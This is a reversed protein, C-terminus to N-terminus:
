LAEAAIDPPSHPAAASNATPNAASNATPNAAASMRALLLLAPQSSLADDTGTPTGTSAATPTGTSAAAAPCGAMMNSEDMGEPRPGYIPLPCGRELAGLDPAAGTFGDNINPLYVGRDLAGSNAALTLDVPQVLGRSDEDLLFGNQFIPATLALGHTEMGHTEMGYSQMVAMSSFQKVTARFRNFAFIGDPFYGNYDFLGTQFPGDWNVVKKLGPGKPGIFLNNAVVFYHSMASTQLNLAIQASVFTNHFVLIGSPEQPPTTGLGHFKMQEDLANVVVNRILYAPGGFIPQVSLPSWANYFRNRFCRVNGAGEDLEVGNDYSYLIDNGYFDVARAGTQETKMADGYGSIRNHCVVHGFGVVQIGDDNSHAGDDISYRLPWRLRGELSNDCIYFDKQGAHGGIAMTTDRINVRRVVNGEAGNTQFRIAREANRITMREIHVFGGGYVELVNCGTCGQGDLITKEEGAGRIVVPNESTGEASIRFQGGYVGDALRIIDGPRAARLAATLEEVDRVPKERPAVPDRPVARTSAELTLEQDVKADPDVAHLVIEYKTGPKLDFITGGFHPPVDLGTIVEPHVRFLPLAPRWVQNVSQKGSQSGAQAGSQSGAERYRVTVAAREGVEGAIPVKVGIATLTPRDLQPPGFRPPNAPPQVATAARPRNVAPAGAPAVGDEADAHRAPEASHPAPNIGLAGIGFAGIGFAGLDVRGGPFGWEPDQIKTGAGALPSGAALHFDFRAEDVFAPLKDLGKNHSFPPSFMSDAQALTRPYQFDGGAEHNWIIVRKEPQPRGDGDLALIDNYSIQSNKNALYIDTAHSTFAYCINNSFVGHDYAAVGNNHSAFVCAAPKYVTNNYIRTNAASSGGYLASIEFAYSKANVVVNRRVTNNAESVQIAPKYFTVLQGVDKIFNGEVLNQQSGQIANWGMGWGGDMVNNLWRNNSCGRICMSVDHGGRTLHNSWIVNGSARGGELTLVFGGNGRPNQTADPSFADHLYCRHVLNHDGHVQVGNKFAPVVAPHTEVNLLANHSGEIMIDYDGNQASSSASILGDIVLYAGGLIATHEAGQPVSIITATEGPNVLVVAKNAATCTQGMSITDGPYSGGKVILVQGCAISRSGYALTRWAHSEDAGNSSDDGEPSVYRLVYKATTEAAINSYSGHAPSSIGSYTRVRFRYGTDPKLGAAIFQAASGDQPDIYTPETVWYPVGNSPPNYVHVGTPDGINCFGNRISVTHDCQYGGAVPIPRLEQWAAYRSDGASQIEVLYGYGPNSVAPWTLNIQNPGKVTATIAPVGLAPAQALLAGACGFLAAVIRRGQNLNM